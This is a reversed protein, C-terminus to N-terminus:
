CLDPGLRRQSRCGRVAERFRRVAVDVYLPDLEVCRAIRGTKEAAILTTGSGCFPDLVIHGRRSADKIADAILVVPKVTSHLSLLEERDKSFRNLGPVSWVNTRYRGHKGLEINNVHAGGPKKFVVVFEHQSRYFSGMGGSGKDWVCINFLELGRSLGANVLVHCSRWDMFLYLLGGPRLAAQMADIAAQLFELFQEPSKEGSAEVFERHRAKGLGSVNNAIRVNYPFDSVIQDVSEDDLLAAYSEPSKADGCLLRHSGLLWIDGPRSVAISGPSSDFEDAPDSAETDGGEMVLDIEASHFGTIELEFEPDLELIADFELKMEGLDWTADEAIKNDAIRYAKLQAKTLHQVRIVPVEDFGAQKAALVRAVGAVVENDADVIAVGM